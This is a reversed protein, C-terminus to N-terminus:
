AARHGKRSREHQGIRRYKLRLARVRDLYSIIEAEDRNHLRHYNESVRIITELINPFCCCCKGRKALVKYIKGPVILQWCDEELLSNIVDEIESQTIVNCSCVIM